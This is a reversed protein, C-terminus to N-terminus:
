LRGAGRGASFRRGAGEGGRRMQPPFSMLESPEGERYRYARESVVDIYGTVTEGDRIPLQRLVLPRTCYAQLAALTDRVHGGFTDIKNVYVIYPVGEGELAKKSCRGLPRRRARTGAGARMGGGCPRGRRDRLGSRLRVRGLRLCDVISWPDGLFSCNGLRLTTTMSRSRPGGGRRVAAGAAGMLGEFLTSKGSSYPGVLAVSRPRRAEASSPTASM